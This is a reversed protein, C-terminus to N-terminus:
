ISIYKSNHGLAGSFTFVPSPSVDRFPTKASLIAFLDALIPYYKPSTKLKKKTMETSSTKYHKKLCIQSELCISLFNCTVSFLLL